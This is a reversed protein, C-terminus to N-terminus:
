KNHILRVDNLSILHHCSYTFPGQQYISSQLRTQVLGSNSFLFCVLKGLQWQQQYEGEAATKEWQFLHTNRFNTCHLRTHFQIILLSVQFQIILLFLSIINKWPSSLSWSVSNNFMKASLLSGSWTYCFVTKPNILNGSTMKAYNELRFKRFYM